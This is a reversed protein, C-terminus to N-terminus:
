RELLRLSSEEARCGAARVSLVSHGPRLIVSAVPGARRGVRGDRGATGDAVGGRGGAHDGRRGLVALLNKATPIDAALRPHSFLIVTADPHEATIARVREQAAASIGPRGKWARIDSYLAVILEGDDAIEVGAARLAAPFALRPYPPWPGGADDEIEEIRVRGAPLRPEGRCVRLSSVAIELAWRRDDEAGWAADVPGAVREAAAAIRRLAEAIRERPLRGDEVAAQVERIVADNDHPYLLLDCGAALAQVSAAAESGGETMGEMIIADTVVLGGFGM